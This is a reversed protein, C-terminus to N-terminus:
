KTTSFIVPNNLDPIEDDFDDFTRRKKSSPAAVEAQSKKSNKATKAHNSPVQLLPQNESSVSELYDMHAQTLNMEFFTKGRDLEQNLIKVWVQMQPQLGHKVFNGYGKEKLLVREYKELSLKKANSAFEQPWIPSHAPYYDFSKDSEFYFLFVYTAELHVAPQCSRVPRQSSGQSM